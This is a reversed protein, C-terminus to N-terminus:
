AKPMRREEVLCKSSIIVYIGVNYLELPGSYANMVWKFYTKTIVKDLYVNGFSSRYMCMKLFWERPNLSIRSCYKKRPKFHITFFIIRWWNERCYRYIQNKIQICVLVYIILKELILVIQLVFLADQHKLTRISWDSRFLTIPKSINRIRKLRMNKKKM